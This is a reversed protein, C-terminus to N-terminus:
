LVIDRLKQNTAMYTRLDKNQLLDRNKSVSDKIFFAVFEGDIRGVFRLIAGMNDNNVKNVLGSVTAYQIAIDTPVEVTDPSKVIQDLDPCKEHINLHTVLSASATEGIQCSIAHYMTDDDIDKWSLIDSVRELSRPTPFANADRDFKHLFEPQFRVWSVVRNDKGKSFMYSAFDELNPEIEITTLRDKLHMPMQNTGSRDSMRNGACVVVSSLPLEFDGVRYENCIQAFINQNLIPAQPLEDFFYIVGVYGKDLIAQHEEKSLLWKPKLTKMSDGDPMQMGGIDTPEYQALNIEVVFMNLDKAVERVLYSKGIGMSGLLFPCIPMQGNSRDKTNEISKIIIKKATRLRM